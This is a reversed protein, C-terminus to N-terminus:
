WLKKQLRGIAMLVQNVYGRAQGANSPPNPFVMDPLSKVRITDEEEDAYNVAPPQPVLYPQNMTLHPCEVEEHLEGCIRCETLVIPARVSTYEGSDSSSESSGSDNSRNTSGIHHYTPIDPAVLGQQALPLPPLGAPLVQQPPPARGISGLCPNACPTGAFSANGPQARASPAAGKPPACPPAIPLPAPATAQQQQQQM